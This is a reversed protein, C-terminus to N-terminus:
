SQEQNNAMQRILLRAGHPRTPQFVSPVVFGIACRPMMQVFRMMRWAQILGKGLGRGCVAVLNRPDMSLTYYQADNLYIKKKEQSMM